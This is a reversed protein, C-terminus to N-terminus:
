RILSVKYPKLNRMYVTCLVTFTCVCKIISHYATMFPILLILKVVASEVGFIFEVFLIPKLNKLWASGRNLVKKFGSVPLPKNSLDEYLRQLNKVANEQAADFLFDDRTLDRTYKEMPSLKIM